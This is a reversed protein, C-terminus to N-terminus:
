RRPDVGEAKLDRLLREFAKQYPGHEKWRTFDGIHRTRRITAAWAKDSDTVADDIRIPFLVTRNERREREFAAEVEDGVWQSSVSNESLILLLKDHLHISEDIRDRFRDGIKLDEPAFWCRVGKNQLDAHLRDAFEQDKASYSIFSSYFQKWQQFTSRTFIILDEPVGCGRLFEEPIEGRSKYLTDIGVTSPSLHRVSELGEVKSLDVNGFMTGGLTAMSFNAHSLEACDLHALQLDAGQLQAQSLDAAYLNSVRVQAEMFDARTLTARILQVGNLNAKRLNFERLNALALNAKRLDPIVENNEGRWRNWVEVGKKLIEMHEPNAM